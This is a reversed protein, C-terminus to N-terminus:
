ADREASARRRSITYGHEDLMAVLAQAFRLRNTIIASPNTVFRHDFQTYKIVGDPHKLEALNDAILRVVNKDTAPM